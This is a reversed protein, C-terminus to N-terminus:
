KKKPRGRKRPLGAVVEVPKAAKKEVPKPAGRWDPGLRRLIPLESNPSINVASYDATFEVKKEDATVYEVKKREMPICRMRSENIFDVVYERNDLLVVDGPKFRFFTQTANNM